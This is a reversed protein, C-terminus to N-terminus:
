PCYHNAIHYAIGPKLNQFAAQRPKFVLIGCIEYHNLSVIGGSTEPKGLSHQPPKERGSGIYYAPAVM